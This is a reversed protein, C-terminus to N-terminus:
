ARGIDKELPAAKSTGQSDWHMRKGGSDYDFGSEYYKFERLACAFTYRANAMTRAVARGTFECKHSVIIGMEYLDPSASSDSRGSFSIREVSCNNREFLARTQGIRNEM